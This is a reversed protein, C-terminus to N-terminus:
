TEGRWMIKLMSEKYLRESRSDDIYVGGVYRVRVVSNTGRVEVRRRSNHLSRGEVEGLTSM